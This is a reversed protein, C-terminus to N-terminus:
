CEGPRTPIRDMKKARNCGNIKKERLFLDMEALAANLVDAALRPERMEVSASVVNTKVDLSVAMLSKLRILAEDLNKATLDRM